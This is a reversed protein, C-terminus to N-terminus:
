HKKKSVDFVVQTANFVFCSYKKSQSIIIKKQHLEHVGRLYTKKKTAQKSVLINDVIEKYKIDKKMIIFKHINDDYYLM